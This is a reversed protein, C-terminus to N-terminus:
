CIIQPVIALFHAYTQIQKCGKCPDGQFLSVITGVIYRLKNARMKYYKAISSNPFMAQQFTENMGRIIRNQTLIYQFHLLIYQFHLYMNLLYMNVNGFCESM